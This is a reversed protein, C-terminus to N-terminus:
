WHVLLAWYFSSHQKTRSFEVEWCSPTIMATYLLSNLFERLHSQVTLSEYHENFVHLSCVNYLVSLTCHLHLCKVDCFVSSKVQCYSCICLQPMPDSCVVTTTQHLPLANTAMLLTLRCRSRNTSPHTVTDTNLERHQVNIKTHLWGGLDVWGEMRRPDTFLSWSRNSLFLCTHNM